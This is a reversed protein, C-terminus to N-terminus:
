VECWAIKLVLVLRVFGGVADDKGRLTTFCVSVCWVVYPIYPGVGLVNPGKVLNGSELM